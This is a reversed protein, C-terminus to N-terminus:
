LLVISIHISKFQCSHFRILSDISDVISDLNAPYMEDLCAVVQDYHSGHIANSFWVSILKYGLWIINVGPSRYIYCYCYHM